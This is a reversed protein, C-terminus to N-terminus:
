LLSYMRAIWTLFSFAIIAQTEHCGASLWDPIQFPVDCTADGFVDATYAGTALWM